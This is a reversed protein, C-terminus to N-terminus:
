RPRLLGAATPSDTVLVTPLGSRLAARVADLKEPGAAVAIRVPVRRIEEVSIGTVRGALEEVVRGQADIFHCCTDGVVERARLEDRVARSLVGGRYLASGPTETLAGIGTVTATLDRYRRVTHAVTAEARLVARAEASSVLAPAHLLYPDGGLVSSATVVLQTGNFEDEASAFGGALQVVDAPGTPALHAVVEALARGWGLGLSSGPGVVTALHAAAVAGLGAQGGATTVPRPSLRVADLDYEQRVQEALRGLRETPEVVEIRAIGYRRADDLLRAVKFRSLGFEEAIDTKSRDELWFLRSVTAALEEDFEPPPEDTSPQRDLM